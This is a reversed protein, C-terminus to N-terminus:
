ALAPKKKERKFFLIGLIALCIQFITFTGLATNIGQILLQGFLISGIGFGMFLMFVNLGMAQGPKDKGVDTIIGALLPQTLDYGLSLVTIALAAIILPINFILVLTALASLALGVPLLLSRGKKDAVKGIMPGFIFGPAGYGALAIGIGLESLGFRNHFYLGLWTFVGSHFLGNLFVFLYTRLGRRNNLLQIYGKFVKRVTLQSSPMKKLEINRLTIILCVMILFGTGAVCEFLGKWGIFPELIVGLTSGFASGGAMAGFLLGLPRGREEYAYMRGTLALSIPVVGSAGIGTMLRWGILQGATNALITLATLIIFAALSGTVISLPSIRDSLLGYFLTMIAYSILYAPILLGITQESTTFIVSLKPILPAIMYAQFFIIFTAASLVWLLSERKKESLM